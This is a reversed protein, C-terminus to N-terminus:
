PRPAWFPWRLKWVDGTSTKKNKTKKIRVRGVWSIIGLLQDSGGFFRFFSNLAPLALLSTGTWHQKVDVSIVPIILSPSGLVVVEIKVCSRIEATIFAYTWSQIVKVCSRLETKWCENLTAKRGCLGCPSNLSPLGPCGGRHECVEQVRCYHICPGTNTYIYTRSQVVCASYVRMRSGSFFCFVFGWVRTSEMSVFYHAGM